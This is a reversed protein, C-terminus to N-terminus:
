HPSGSSLRYNSKGCTEMLSIDTDVVSLVSKVFDCFLPYSTPVYVAENHSDTM